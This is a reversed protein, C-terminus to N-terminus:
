LSAGRKVHERVVVVIVVQYFATVRRGYSQYILNEDHWTNTVSFTNKMVSATGASTKFLPHYRLVQSEETDVSRYWVESLAGVAASAAAASGKLLFSSNKPSM